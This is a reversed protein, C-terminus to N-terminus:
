GPVRNWVLTVPLSVRMAQARRNQTGPIWRLQRAYALAAKDVAADGTGRTMEIAGSRGDALVEVTLVVSRAQDAPLGAHRAFSAPDVPQFHSLQPASAPAVVASIDGWDSSEYRLAQLSDLRLVQTAVSVEPIPVADRARTEEIIFDATVAQPQGESKIETRAHTPHVVVLALVALHGVLVALAARLNKYPSISQRHM